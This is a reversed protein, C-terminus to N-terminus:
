GEEGTAGAKNMEEFFAMEHVPGLFAKAVRFFVDKLEDATEGTFTVPDVTCSNLCGGEGYYLEHIAYRDEGNPFVTHVVGYGWSM